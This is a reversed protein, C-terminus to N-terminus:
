LDELDEIDDLTFLEDEDTKPAEKVTQEETVAVSQVDTKKIDEVPKDEVIATVEEKEETVKQVPAPNGDPDVDKEIEYAVLELRGFAENNNVRGRVKVIRGLLDTKFQEFATPQDKLAVLEDHTKGLLQELQERWVVCRINDTGDDLYFNMVYNYTPEIQGHTPCTYSGNEEKARTNCEKCVPFYRPDFLQLITAIVSVNQDEPGLEAVKKTAAQPRPTAATIDVEITVGEPNRYLKADHGLHLEVRDNNSRAYANTIKIVDGVAIDKLQDAQDNWLVIRITGTTDTLLFNGVKGERTATKFERVEYVQRAKGTITVGRMGQSVKDITVPADPDHLKVGLENAIIHAAGEESILGSLEDLKQKIKEKVGAEDLSTATTIKEIIIALPMTQM